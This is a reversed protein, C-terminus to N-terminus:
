VAVTSAWEPQYDPHDKYPVALLTLVYRLARWAGGEADVSADGVDVANVVHGGLVKRAVERLEVEPRRQM